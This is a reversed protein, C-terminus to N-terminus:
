RGASVVQEIEAVTRITEIQDMSFEAGFEQEIATVLRLHNMSDWHDTDERRLEPTVLSARIELVEAILNYLRDHV